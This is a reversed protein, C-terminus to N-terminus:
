GNHEETNGTARPNRGNIPKFNFLTRVAQKAGPQRFIKGPSPWITGWEPAPAPEEAGWKELVLEIADDEVWVHQGYGHRNLGSNVYHEEPSYEPLHSHGCLLIEDEDLHKQAYTKMTKNMFASVQQFRPGLHRIGASEVRQGLRANLNRASRW